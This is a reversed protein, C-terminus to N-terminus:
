LKQLQRGRIDLLETQLPFCKLLSSFTADAIGMSDSSSILMKFLVELELKGSGCGKFLFLHSSDEM